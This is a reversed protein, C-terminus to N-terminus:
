SKAIAITAIHKANVFGLRAGIHFLNPSRLPHPRGKNSALESAPVVADLRDRADGPRLTRAGLHDPNRARAYCLV